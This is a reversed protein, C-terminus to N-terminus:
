CRQQEITLPKLRKLFEDNMEKKRYILDRLMIDISPIYRDEESQKFTEVLYNKHREINKYEVPTVMYLKYVNVKRQSEPLHAHSLYRIARGIVQKQGADNWSPEMLIIDNTGRLDLGEGGARTIFLINRKGANYDDVVQKRDKQNLSGDIHNYNAIGLEDLNKMVLKIGADLFNSFIVIKNTRNNSVYDTLWKLKSSGKAEIKNTSQRLGTYFATAIAALDGYGFDDAFGRKKEDYITEYIEFFDPSMNIFLDHDIRKPYYQEQTKEDPSYMSIKCKYFKKFETDNSVIIRNFVKRTERTGFEGPNLEKGDIMRILNYTDIPHNYIPTATLLLVRKAKVACKSITLVKKGASGSVYTRLNHAEDIILMNEGCGKGRNGDKSYNYYGDYTFFDYKGSNLVGYKEMEKKFNSLLSTPTIVVVRRDPYEDLFCQSATVATLTKGSGTSHIALLGRHKKFHNIVAIQHDRLEVRSRAVCDGSRKDEPEKIEPSKAERRKIPRKAEPNHLGLLRCLEESTLARGQSANKILGRSLCMDVLDDKRYANNTATPRVGCPRSSDLDPTKREPKSGKKLEIRIKEALKDKNGSRYTSFGKIGLRSALRKMDGIRMSEVDIDM